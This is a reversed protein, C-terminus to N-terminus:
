QIVSTIICIKLLPCIESLNRRNMSIMIRAKERKASWIVYIISWSYMKYSIRESFYQTAVDMEAAERINKPSEASISISGENNYPM